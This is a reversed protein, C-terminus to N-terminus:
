RSFPAVATCVPCVWQLSGSTRQIYMAQPEHQSSCAPETRISTFEGDKTLDCYGQTGFFRICGNVACAFGDLLKFCSGMGYRVRGFRMDALHVDCVVNEYHLEQPAM